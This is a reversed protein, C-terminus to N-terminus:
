RPEEPGAVNVVSQAIHEAVSQRLEPPLPEDTLSEYMWLGDAALRAVFRALAEPDSAAEDIPPTWRSLVKTWPKMYDPHTAAEIILSLEARTSSQTTVRAYAALREDGSADQATKGAADVMGAEWQEALHHHIAKLLADRSRFHYMLGGRTLGAQAAVSDLTVGTVGDRQVVAVAADLIKGRNSQRM